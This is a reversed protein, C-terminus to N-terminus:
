IFSFLQHFTIICRMTLKELISVDCNCSVTILWSSKLTTVLQRKKRGCVFTSCSEASAQNIGGFVLYKLNCIDITLSDVGQASGTVHVTVVPEFIM